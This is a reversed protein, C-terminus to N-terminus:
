LNLEVEGTLQGAIEASVYRGRFWQLSGLLRATVASPRPNKLPTFNSFRIYTMKQRGDAFSRYEDVTAFCTEAGHKSWLEETGGGQRELFDATGRIQKSPKKVYFLLKCAELPAVLNKRVFAHTQKGATQRECLRNWNKEDAVLIYAYHENETQM